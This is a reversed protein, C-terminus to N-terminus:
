RPVISYSDRTPQSPLTKGVWFSWVLQPRLARHEEETGALGKGYPAVGGCYYGGEPWTSTNWLAYYTGHSWFLWRVDFMMIGAGKQVNPSYWTTPDYHLIGAEVSVLETPLLRATAELVEAGGLVGGAL